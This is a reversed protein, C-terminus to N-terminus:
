KRSNGGFESTNFGFCFYFFTITKAFSQICPKFKERNNHPLKLLLRPKQQHRLLPLQQLSISESPRLKIIWLETDQNIAIYVFTTTLRYIRKEPTLIKKPGRSASLDMPDSQDTTAFAPSQAFITIFPTTFRSVSPTVYGRIPFINSTPSANSNSVPHTFNPYNKPKAQNTLQNKIWLIQCIFIMEDSTMRDIDHHVM